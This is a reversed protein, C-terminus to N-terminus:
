IVVAILRASAGYFRWQWILYLAALAVAWAGLATPSVHQGAGHIVRLYAHAAGSLGENLVRLPPLLQGVFGIGVYTLCAEPLGRALLEQDSSRAAALMALVFSYALLALSTTPDFATLLAAVCAAFVRGACGKPRTFAVLIALLTAAATRRLLFSLPGLQGDLLLLGALAAISALMQKFRFVKGDSITM